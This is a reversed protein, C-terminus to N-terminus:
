SCTGCTNIATFSCKEESTSIEKLNMQINGIKSNWVSHNPSKRERAHHHYLRTGDQLDDPCQLLDAGDSMSDLMSTYETSERM